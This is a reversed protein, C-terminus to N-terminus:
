DVGPLYGLAVMGIAMLPCLAAMVLVLSLVALLLAGVGKRLAKM